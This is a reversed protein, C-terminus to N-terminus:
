SLFLFIISLAIFGKGKTSLELHLNTANLLIHAYVGVLSDRTTQFHGM